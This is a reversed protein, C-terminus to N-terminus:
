LHMLLSQALRGEPPYRRWQCRDESKKIGEVGGKNSTGDSQGKIVVNYDMENCNPRDTPQLTLQLTFVTETVVIIIVSTLAPTYM